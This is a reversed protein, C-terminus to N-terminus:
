RWHPLWSLELLRIDFPWGYTLPSTIAFVLAALIGALVVRRRWQALQATRALILISFILAPFYHYLFMVRAILVFPLWSLLYAALLWSLVADNERRAIQPGIRIFAFAMTLGASSWVVMNGLSYTHSDASGDSSSPVRLYYIPKWMLPWQWWRSGYPHDAGVRENARLMERQTDIFNQLFGPAAAPMTEGRAHTQLSQQFAPPMFGDGPGPLTLLAFHIYFVALYTASMGVAVAAAHRWWLWSPLARTWLGWLMRLGAILVFSLATWKVACAMGLLLGVALFQLSSPQRLARLLLTLAAIGFLLLFNDFYIFRAHAILANDLLVFCAAFLAYRLTLGFERALSLVAAPLLAGALAPLFRLIEANHDSFSADWKVDLGIPQFDWLAAFAAVLLKGLPPHTDFYFHHTFYASIYQSFYIEDMGAEAHAGFALFRTLVGGVLLLLMCFRWRKAEGDAAILLAIIKNM